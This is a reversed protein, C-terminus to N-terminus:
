WRYLPHGRRANEKAKELGKNYAFVVTYLNLEEMGYICGEIVTRDESSLTELIRFTKEQLDSVTEELEAIRRVEQSDEKFLYARIEKDNM